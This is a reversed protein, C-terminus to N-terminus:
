HRQRLNELIRRYRQVAAEHTFEREVLARANRAIQELDPHSLARIINRAICEPSNNEMIFGNEGDSLVDAMLGVPTGLVPTGCAMAEFAIYPGTETYSPVVLLRLENLYGPLEDHPIWGVFKVKNGLKNAYEEVRPRLQGDGGILFAAEDKTQVAKPIAELFNLFGKEQSLRGIYGVLNDREHLPKQVKFKDFNLFYEHALSIKHRHKELSFQEVLIPSYVVIRAALGYNLRELVSTVRVLFVGQKSGKHLQKAIQSSSYTAVIITEKGALRAALMPLLFTGGELYFIVARARSMNKALHYAMRLQLSVFRPIKVFISQEQGDNRINVLKIKPSFVDREPYNGTILVLKDVIPELVKVFNLVLLNLPPIGAVVCIKFGREDIEWM